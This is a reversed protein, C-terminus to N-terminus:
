RKDTNISDSQFKFDQSMQDLKANIMTNISDSQFKFNIVECLRRADTITNISDSQFKFFSTPMPPLERTTQILLILNSNLTIIRMKKGHLYNPILLILNSNLPIKGDRVCM